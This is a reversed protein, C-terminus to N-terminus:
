LIQTKTLNGAYSNRLLDGNLLHLSLASSSLCTLHYGDLKYLCCALIFWHMALIDQKVQLTAIFYKVVNCFTKAGLSQECGGWSVWSIGIAWLIKSNCAWLIWDGGMYGLIFREGNQIDNPGIIGQVCTPFRRFTSSLTVGHFEEWIWAKKWIKITCGWRCYPFEVSEQSCVFLYIRTKTMFKVLGCLIVWCIWLCSYDWCLTLVEAKLVVALPFDVM